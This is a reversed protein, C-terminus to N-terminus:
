SMKQQNQKNSFELLLDFYAATTVASSLNRILTIITILFFCYFLGLRLSCCLVHFYFSICKGKMLNPQALKAPSFLSLCRSVIFTIFPFSAAEVMRENM